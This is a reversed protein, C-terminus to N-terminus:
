GARAALAALDFTPNTAARAAVVALALPLRACLGIIEDVARPEAAVRAAGLRGVLLQRAGDGTLLDVTLPHAGATVLGVLANRSAVLVVCTPSGPLLQRVQEADRANDLM